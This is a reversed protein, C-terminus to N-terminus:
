YDPWGNELGGVVSRGWANVGGKVDFVDVSEGVQSGALAKSLSVAALQSDNGRRCILYIAQPTSSPTSSAIHTLPDSLFEKLPVDLGPINLIRRFLSFVTPAFLSKSTPISAISFEEPTRTDILQVKQDESQM